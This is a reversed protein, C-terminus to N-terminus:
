LVLCLRKGASIPCKSSCRCTFKWTAITSGPSVVRFVAGISRYPGDGFRDPDLQRVGARIPLRPHEPSQRVWAQVQAPSVVATKFGSDPAPRHTVGFMLKYGFKNRERDLEAKFALTVKDNIPYSHMYGLSPRVHYRFFLGGFSKSVWSVKMKPDVFYRSSFRFHSNGTIRETAFTPALSDNRVHFGPQISMNYGPSYFTLSPNIATPVQQTPSHQIALGGWVNGALHTAYCHTFTATHFALGGETLPPIFIARHRSPRIKQFGEYDALPELELHIDHERTRKLKHM